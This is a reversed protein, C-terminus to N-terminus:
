LRVRFSVYPGSYDIRFNGNLGEDGSTLDQRYFHYGGVIATHGSIRYQGYVSFDILEGSYKDFDLAFIEFNAGVSVKETFNARLRAGLVPLVATTGARVSDNVGSVNLEVDTVHVGGFMSLDKQADRLFSFGYGFRIVRSDFSSSVSEGAAFTVGRVSLPVSLDTTANRNLEFYSLDLRHYRGFTWVLDIPILVERDDLGQVDELDPSLGLVATNLHVHSTTNAFFAGVGIEFESPYDSLVDSDTAVFSKLIYAFGIDARWATEKDVIPSNQIEDALFDVNIGAYVYWVPHFKWSVDLGLGPTVAAGPAYAPRGPRAESNEVGYYHNVLDDSQYLVALQPVFQLKETAFVYSFKLDYEYGGHENTLDTTAFLDISAPGLRKGFMAGAQVTWDRRKMGALAVSSESGYGLTQIKGTVGYSWGGATIKRLGLYGDRLVLTSNTISPHTFSNPVPYIIAFNDIGIYHSQSTYLNLSLAYDNLDVSDLFERFGDAEAAVPWFAAAMLAVLCYSRPSLELQKERM